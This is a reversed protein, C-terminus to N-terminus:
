HGAHAGSSAATGNTGAPAPSVVGEFLGEGEEAVQAERSHLAGAHGSVMAGAFARVEAEAAREQALASAQVESLDVASLFAHVSRGNEEATTTQAHATPAVVAALAALALARAVNRM